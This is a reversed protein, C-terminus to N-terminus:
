CFITNGVRLSCQFINIQSAAIQRLHEVTKALATNAIGRRRDVVALDTVLIKVFRDGTTFYYRHGTMRCSTSGM